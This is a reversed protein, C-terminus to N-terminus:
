PLPDILPSPIAPAPASGAPLGAPRARDDVGLRDLVRRSIAECEVPTSLVHPRVMVILERRVDRRVDRRFFFGLLPISGLLPVQAVTTEQRREVMGGFAVALGSRAVITGSVSQSSVVPVAQTTFGSGSPVLLNATGDADSREQVIRLTVSRDAHINPTMLLTTGVPRFEIQTTSAVQQTGTDTNTSQSANFGRNLPVERGIFLRSVEQNTTLLLPSAVVSVRQRSELLQLRAAFTDNVYQFVLDGNRVGDGGPLPSGGSPRRIAGSTFAGAAGGSSGHLEFFSEFGDGLEIAMIRVELLVQPSPVDLMRILERIRTLAAADATRVLLRNQKRLVAIQIAAPDDAASGAPGGDLGGSGNASGGGSGTGGRANADIGLGQGRGDVLDFREFRRRLDEVTAADADAITCRVRGAYLDRITAGIDAANPYLLTFSAIPVDAPPPPAAVTASVPTPVPVYVIVPTPTPPTPAVAVPATAPPQRAAEAQRLAADPQFPDREPPEAAITGAIAMLLPSLHLRPM